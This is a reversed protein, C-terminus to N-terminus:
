SWLPLSEGRVSLASRLSLSVQFEHMTTGQPLDREHLCVATAEVLQPDRLMATALGGAPVGHAKQQSAVRELEAHVTVLPNRPDFHLRQQMAPSFHLLMLVSFPWRM